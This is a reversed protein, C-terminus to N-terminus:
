WPSKIDSLKVEEGFLNKLVTELEKTNGRGLLGLLVSQFVEGKMQWYKNRIDLVSKNSRGICFISILFLSPIHNHTDSCVIGNVGYGYMYAYVQKLRGGVCAGSIGGM